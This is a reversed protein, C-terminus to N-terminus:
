RVSRRGTPRSSGTPPRSSTVKQAAVAARETVVDPAGRVGVESLAQQYALAADQFLELRTFADALERWAAAALRAVDLSALAGAASRYEAVAEDRRDLALLAGGRVLHVYAGEIQAEESLRAAAKDAYTLASKPRGLMLSARALETECYAVDTSTGVDTLSKHATLLVDRALKPQSPSTRLLLWGYAVRLRALSREDDGEAYLALAREALMVAVAIDDAAEAVLSANWYVAARARPSGRDEVERLATQALRGATVLDGRVYYAGIVTSVLEAHTDTGSLGLAGISSLVGAGLDLAHGVDGAEQYCRVLDVTLRVHDDIASDARAQADLGELEDIAEGLRGVSELARARQWRAASVLDAPASAVDDLLVNLQNLADAAEGNRVALEAYRVGLHFKETVRPDYGHLLYEPPCDLVAALTAVVERTPTRKGAELLSVYSASLHDGALDAQSMGMDRRRDRIRQGFERDGSPQESTM